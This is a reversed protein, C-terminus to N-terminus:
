DTRVNLSEDIFQYAELRVQDPFDHECDPYRVQLKKDADLLRYIKNAENIGKKVGAVDFNSDRLPSNSFFPRPALAGVVEYFDFPVLDPDLNYVDRLRPMYRLSTWGKIDGEYYDHFPTWGCSSVIVKLRQDFVGAFMANHGGLSHGIVGIKEPDVYDLSELLDVCRMHNFIGKMTGSIYRDNEFDYDYDGFSLYDPCLVVYGRQALELGYQRHDLPGEGAVILKGLPGTPHLALMAPLNKDEPIHTPIYLLAPIRDGPESAFTISQRIFGDGKTESLIEVDLDVLDQRDPLNGMALQMGELIQSRRKYWDAPTSVPEPAGSVDLYELLNSHSLNQQAM